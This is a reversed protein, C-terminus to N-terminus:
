KHKRVLARFYENGPHYNCANGRGALVDSDSPTDVPPREHGYRPDLSMTMPGRTPPHSHKKNPGLAILIQPNEEEENDDEVQCSM